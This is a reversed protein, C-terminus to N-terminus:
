IGVPLLEKSCLYSLSDPGEVNIEDGVLRELRWDGASCPGTRDRRWSPHSRPELAESGAGPEEAAAAM